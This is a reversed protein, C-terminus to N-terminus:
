LEACRRLFDGPSALEVNIRLEEKLRPVERLVTDEQGEIKLDVDITTARWGELVATAGGVLYVRANGRCSQGLRRMFERIRAPDAVERM